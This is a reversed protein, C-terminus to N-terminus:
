AGTGPEGVPDEQNRAQKVTCGSAIDWSGLKNGRLDNDEFTGAGSDHVWVAEYGNGTIRNRRVVPDGGESVEVGSLANGVVENEERVEVGSLANGFVENEEFTGRGDKYVYIGGQKGDQIRNRRVIPDSEERVEVGSLANGVVENEEFTGRGNEYVYIGGQKGDHIRNRRVVPDAFNHVAVCALSQSSIDCDELVLRGQTIDVAYWKGGGIQRITLNRVIGMNAKFLIVDSGTAQVVVDDRNGVGIIELPKDLVLGGPYFGPNVLLREGAKSQAVAEVLSVHEGRGMADVIRTPPETLAPGPGGAKQATESPLAETAPLVEAGERGSTDPSTRAPRTPTGGAPGAYFAQKVQLALGDIAQLVEPSDFPKHRFSRWDVRQHAALGTAWSSGERLQATELTDCDLWYIPLILDNRGLQRERGLFLGYEEQCAQSQFYLPTMIPFLLFVDELATKIAERWQMGWQINRTDQFIRLDRQGTWQRVGNELRERFATVRGDEFEDDLRAYSLFAAFRAM